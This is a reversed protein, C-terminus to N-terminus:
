RVRSVGQELESDERDSGRRTNESEDMQLDEPADSVINEQRIRGELPLQAEEVEHFPDDPKAELTEDADEPDASQSAFISEDTSTAHGGLGGASPRIRRELIDEEDDDDKRVEEPANIGDPSEYLVQGKQALTKRREQGEQGARGLVGAILSVSRLSEDNATIPYTVWTPNADTDIIGITPIGALGCEHLVNHNELPNLCVVLDPKLVSRDLLQEEFGPVERDLEDVVKMECKGLIQQGNTISGPTWREFLHCAGALKAALVVCKDQGKRSGVFLTLGGREAVSAVVRAARRLHAATVDLSIIHIGQRVGFIFRSNHPNWLSTSHGMHTQSALLLELSVDAPSPPNVVLDSPRYHPAVNSGYHGTTQRIHTNTYYTDVATDLKVPAQSPQMRQQMRLFAPDVPEAASPNNDADEANFHQSNLAAQISFRRRWPRSAHSFLFRRGTKFIM